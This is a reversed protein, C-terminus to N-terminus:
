ANRIEALGWSDAVYHLCLVLHGGAVRLFSLFFQVMLMLGELVLSGAYFGFGGHSVVSRIGVKKRPSWSMVGTGCLNVFSLPFM